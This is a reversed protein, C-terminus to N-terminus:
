VLHLHRLQLQHQHQPLHQLQLQLQHRLQHQLQLQLQHRLQHRLQPQLQIVMAQITKDALAGSTATVTNVLKQAACSAVTDNKGVIAEYTVTATTGKALYNLDRGTGFFASEASLANGNLKLSGPVYDVNAPLKDKLGFGYVPIDGTASATIRYNVHAGSKVSV